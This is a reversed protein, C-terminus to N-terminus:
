SVAATPIRWRSQLQLGRRVQAAGSLGSILQAACGCPCKDSLSRTAASRLVRLVRLIRFCLQSRVCDGRTCRRTCPVAPPPSKGEGCPNPAPPHHQDAPAARGVQGALTPKLPRLQLANHHKPLNIHRAVTSWLASAPHCLAPTPVSNPRLLRALLRALPRPECGNKFIFSYRKSRDSHPM